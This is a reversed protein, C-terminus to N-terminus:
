TCWSVKIFQSITMREFHQDQRNEAQQKLHERARQYADRLRAQHTALWDSPNEDVEEDEDEGLLLDIPLCAERRFMLFHPSHM